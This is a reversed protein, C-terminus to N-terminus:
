SSAPWRFRRLDLLSFAECYRMRRRLDKWVQRSPAGILRPEEEPAYHELWHQRRELLYPPSSSLTSLELVCRYADSLTIFGFEASSYIIMDEAMQSLHVSALSAWMLFEAVFDRDSVGYMSNEAIRAFGLEERLFERDVGFPNGALAGSGLPLVSVRPILQQLRELDASFAFARSLLLHSWRIPQARQLSSTDARFAEFSSPRFGVQLHTYGPMLYDTEKDAREVLVHIVGKLAAEVEGIAGLLWLRM